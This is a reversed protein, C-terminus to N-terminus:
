IRNEDILEKAKQALDLGIEVAKRYTETGHM